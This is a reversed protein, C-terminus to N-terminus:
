FWKKYRFFGLMGLTILIMVIWIGYYGYKWDLEPMFRFNMGYVGVIFTLPIFITSIVTLVKIVENLRNNMANIYVDLLGSSLDKYTDVMDILHV